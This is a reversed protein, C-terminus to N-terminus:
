GKAFPRCVKSKAALYRLRLTKKQKPLDSFSTIPQGSCIILNQEEQDLYWAEKLSSTARLRNILEYSGIGLGITLLIFLVSMSLLFAGGHVIILSIPIAILPMFPLRILNWFFDKGEWTGNEGSAQKGIFVTGKQFMLGDDGCLSFFHTYPQFLYSLDLDRAGWLVAFLTIFFKLLFDGFFVFPQVTYSFIRRRRFSCQDIPKTNFLHNVWKKEAPSPEPAFAATPISVSVPVSNDIVENDGFAFRYGDGNISLAQYDYGHYGRSLWRARLIRVDSQKEIFGWINMKGSRNFELYAMMDKLPVIKRIEKEPTYEEGDPSIVLIVHPNKNGAETLAAITEKSICWSVAISGSSVDSNAVHLEFM